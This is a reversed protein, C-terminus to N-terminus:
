KVRGKTENAISDLLDVSRTFYSYFDKETVDRKPINLEKIKITKVERYDSNNFVQM